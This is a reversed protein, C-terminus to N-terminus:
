KHRTLLYGDKAQSFMWWNTGGGYGLGDNRVGDYAHHIANTMAEGLGGLLEDIMKADLM